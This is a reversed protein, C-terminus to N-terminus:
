EKVLFEKFSEYLYLAEMAEILGDGNCILRDGHCNNMIFVAYEDNLKGSDFKSEFEQETM